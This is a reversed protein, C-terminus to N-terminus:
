AFWRTGPSPSGLLTFVPWHKADPVCFGVETLIEVSKEHVLETVFDPLSEMQRGKSPRGAYAPGQLLSTSLFHDWDRKKERGTRGWKIRTRLITLVPFFGGGQTKTHNRM